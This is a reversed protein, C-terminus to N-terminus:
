KGLGLRLLKKFDVRYVLCGLLTFIIIDFLNIFGFLQKAQDAIGNSLYPLVFSGAASAALIFLLLPLVPSIGSQRYKIIRIFKVAGLVMAAALVVAIFWFNALPAMRIRANEWLSFRYEQQGWYDPNQVGTLYPARIYRAYGASEQLINIFRSPHRLYFMLIRPKSIVDFFERKFEDSEIDFPYDEFYAQWHQLVSYKSDIGLWELDQEPTQSNRLVGDFVATFSTDREIWIPIFLSYFIILAFVTGGSFAILKGRSFGTNKLPMFGLPALAFLIGVPIWAFKSTAMLYVAAYYFILKGSRKEELRLLLGIALLTLAYQLPEGYFSNFYMTYGQDSLVFIATFASFIFIKIGFRRYVYGLILHIAAAYIALHIIFLGFLNYTSLPKNTLINIGVNIIKSLKITLVQSSPFDFYTFDTQIFYLARTILADSDSFDMTFGPTFGYGQWMTRPNGDAFRIKNPHIVRMFDGNNAPGVAEPVFTSLVAIVVCIFTVVTHPYKAFGKKIEKFAV